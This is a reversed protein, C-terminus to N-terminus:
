VITAFVHSCDDLFGIEHKYLNRFSESCIICGDSDCDSSSSYSAAGGPLPSHQGGPDDESEHKHNGRTEILENRDDIKSGQRERYKATSSNPHAWERRENRHSVRGPGALSLVNTQESDSSSICHSSSKLHASIVFSDDGGVERGPQLSVYSDIDGLTLVGNYSDFGFEEGLEKNKVSLPM